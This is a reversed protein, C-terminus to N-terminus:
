CALALSLTITVPVTITTTATWTPLSADVEVDAATRALEGFHQQAAHDGFLNLESM